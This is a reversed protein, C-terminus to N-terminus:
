VIEVTYIANQNVVDQFFTRLKSFVAIFYKVTYGDQEINDISFYNFFSGQNTLFADFNNGIDWIKTLDLTLPLLQLSPLVQNNIFLIVNPLDSLQLYVNSDDDTLGELPMETELKYYYESVMAKYLELALNPNVTYAYYLIAGYSDFDTYFGPADPNDYNVKLEIRRSM